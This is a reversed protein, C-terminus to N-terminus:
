PSPPPASADTIAARATTIFARIAAHDKVGPASEVGRAVDVGAFRGGRLADAVNAPTLGGACWLPPFDAPWSRSLARLRDFGPAPGGKPADAIVAALTARGDIDPQQMKRLDGESPAAIRPNHAFPPADRLECDSSPANRTIVSQAARVYALLDRESDGEGIEWARIISLAPRDHLLRVAFTASESGHLQVGGVNCRDIEALIQELPQDRYLLVPQAPQGRLATCIEAARDLSATRPSNARIVGIFDAGAAAAALADNTTTVGCIKVTLAPM